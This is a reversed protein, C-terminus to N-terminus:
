KYKSLLFLYLISDNVLLVCQQTKCTELLILFNQIKNSIIVTPKSNYLTIERATMQHEIGHLKLFSHLLSRDQFANKM